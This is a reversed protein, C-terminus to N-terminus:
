VLVLNSDRGDAHQVPTSSRALPRLSASGNRIRMQRSYEHSYDHCGANMQRFAQEFRNVPFGARQAEASVLQHNLREFAIQPSAGAPRRSEEIPQRIDVRFRGLIDIREQLM